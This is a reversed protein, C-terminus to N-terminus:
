FVNLYCFLKSVYQNICENRAGQCISIEQTIFDVWTDARYSLRNLTICIEEVNRNVIDLFPNSRAGTCVDVDEKLSKNWCNILKPRKQIEEKLSEFSLTAFTMSTNLAKLTADNIKFLTSRTSIDLKVENIHYNILVFEYITSFNTASTFSQMLFVLQERLNVYSKLYKQMCMDTKNLLIANQAKTQTVYKAAIKKFDEQIKRVAPFSQASAGVICIVICFLFSIKM